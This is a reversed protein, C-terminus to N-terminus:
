RWPKGARAREARIVELEAKLRARYERNYTARAAKCEVCRCRHYQYGNLTGHLIDTM